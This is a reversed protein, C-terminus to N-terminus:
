DNRMWGFIDAPSPARRTYGDTCFSGGQYRLTVEDRVPEKAELAAAYAEADDKVRYGIGPGNDRWWRRQNASAGWAVRCGLQEVSIAAEVLSALDDLSLWTSLHRTEQPEPLASGIRLSLSEVGHKDWYLRGMLEGIAKSLGYFGDPRLDCNEDLLTTREQFGIAHNSSAFIVRAGTQRALEFINHVGIINPGLIEDFSRENAIAGFHVIADLEAALALVAERDALDVQSFDADAPLDAPAVAIDTLLLKRGPAALRHSLFAGLRGSAGTLLVKQAM